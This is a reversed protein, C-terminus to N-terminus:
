LADAHRANFLFQIYHGHGVACSGGRACSSGGPDPWVYISVFFMGPTLRGTSWTWCGGPDEEKRVGQTCRAYLMCRAYVKRVRVGQTCRAYVKGARRVGQTCRAYVKRVARRVARRVGQVARRVGQTCALYVAYVKRVGQTCRAYLAAYVERVGQTCRAYLAAYPSVHSDM